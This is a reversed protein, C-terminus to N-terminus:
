CVLIDNGPLGGHVSAEGDMIGHLYCPGVFTYTRRSSATMGVRRMPRLIFPLKSGFAVHVEDGVAVDALGLGSGVFGAPGTGMRGATMFILKRTETSLWFMNTITHFGEEHFRTRFSHWETGVFTEAEAQLWKWWSLVKALDRSHFRRKEHDNNVGEYEEMTDAFVARWFTEERDESADHDTPQDRLGAMQRWEKIQAVLERPHAWSATRMSSTESVSDVQITRIKLQLDDNLSAHCPRTKSAAFLHYEYPVPCFIGSSTWDPVWSPLGLKGDRGLDNFTLIRLSEDERIIHFAARAFVPRVPLTYDPDIKDKSEVLGLIAYVLDRPDSAKRRGVGTRILNSLSLSQDSNVDVGRSLHSKRLRELTEFKALGDQIETWYTHEKRYADKGWQACCGEYHVAFYKQAQVFQDFDIIHPGYYLVPRRSTVIEQIIWARDWYQSSLIDLLVSASKIWTQSPHYAIDDGKNFFPLEHFHNMHAFAYILSFAGLVPWMTATQSTNFFAPVKELSTWDFVDLERGPLRRMKANQFLVEMQQQQDVQRILNLPMGGLPMQIAPKRGFLTPQLWQLKEQFILKVRALDGDTIEPLPKKQQGTGSLTLGELNLPLIEDSDTETGIVSSNSSRQKLPKGTEPKAELPSETYKPEGLWLIVTHAREYIERMLTVQHSKEQLSAQDICISDV